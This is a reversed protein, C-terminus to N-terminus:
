DVDENTLDVDNSELEFKDKKHTRHTKSTERGRELEIERNARRYMKRIDEETIKFKTKKKKPM